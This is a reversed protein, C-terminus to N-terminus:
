LAPLGPGSFVPLKQGRVLTNLGDIATVGTEIFDRPRARRVPNLPAGWIPRIADGIPAQLGDVPVGMGNLARGLLERGVVVSAAEGTLTVDATAPALGITEELVQVVTVDEGADIVQGRRPAVGPATIAVWEGLAAGFTSRLYLLPGSAAHAGRYRRTIM